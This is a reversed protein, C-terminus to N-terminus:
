WFYLESVKITILLYQVRVLLNHKQGPQNEGFKISLYTLFLINSVSGKGKNASEGQM